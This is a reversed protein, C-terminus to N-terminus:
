IPKGFRYTKGALRGVPSVQNDCHAALAEGIFLHLGEYFFTM